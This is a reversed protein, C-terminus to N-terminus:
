EYKFDLGIAFRADMGRELAKCLPKLLGDMASVKAFAVLCELREAHKLLKEIVDGHGREENVLLRVFTGEKM